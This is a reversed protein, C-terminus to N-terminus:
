TLGIFRHINRARIGERQMTDAEHSHLSEVRLAATAYDLLPFHSGFCFKEAGYVKILEGLNVLARGSTDIIVWSHKLLARDEDNLTMSNAAQYIIFKADPVAKILPMVDTLAWEEKIDLWSSPRSDVMRLTLGVPIELEKCMNVVRLCAEDLLNYRHYKPFLRVAKFGFTNICEDLDREWGNMMPNIVGIGVIRSELNNKRIEEYLERNGDQSDKYFIANINTVLSKSIGARKMRTVLALCHNDHLKWFPWHGVWANADIWDM